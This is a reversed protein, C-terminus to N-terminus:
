HREKGRVVKRVEKGDQILWDVGWNVGWAGGKEGVTKLKLIFLHKTMLVEEKEIQV